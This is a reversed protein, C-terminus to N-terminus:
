WVWIKKGNCLSIKDLGEKSLAVDGLVIVVDDQSVVQNWNKIIQNDFEKSTKFVIDRGFLNLRSDDFHIDSTFYTKM